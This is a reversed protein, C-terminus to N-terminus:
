QIYKETELFTLKCVKCWRAKCVGYYNPAAEQSPCKCQPCHIEKNNKNRSLIELYFKLLYIANFAVLCILIYIM